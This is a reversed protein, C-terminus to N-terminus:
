KKGTKYKSGKEGVIEDFIGIMDFLGNKSKKWGAAPIVQLKKNTFPIENEALKEPTV